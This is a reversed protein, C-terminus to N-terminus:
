AAVEVGQRQLRRDVARAHAELGEARALTAACPGIRRLGQESVSQVSIRRQFSAVSVGSWARAAGATPLVHNTGSCYDGLVEAAWDGLFVSGAAFVSPLWRRPERLALILHEPAYRNSVVMATDIDPMLLLRSNALSQMAIAARPLDRLQLELEGIVCQLIRVSDSLLLVQSDPGHEAQSLLDAALFAPNAGDDAIVLVESPGAPMDIAPGGPEAAVQQKATTVWANGPGFLKDCRPITATGYAMAAIAQAGGIRYVRDLGCLSATFLLAPDVRGERDPPTCVVRQRCGALAAPIGLMLVTSLLPASGGPVYLGVGDIARNLTECHVGAATEVSALPTAMTAEHFATIRGAADRIAQKLERGLESGAVLMAAQPVEFADLEVGDFRRGYDRIAGDGERRVTALIDAVDRQLGADRQSPPRRLMTDREGPDLAAWDVINM